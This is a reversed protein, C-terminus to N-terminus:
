TESHSYSCSFRTFGTIDAIFPKARAINKNFPITESNHLVITVPMGEKCWLYSLLEQIRLSNKASDCNEFIHVDGSM